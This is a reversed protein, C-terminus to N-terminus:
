LAYKTVNVSSHRAVKVAWAAGRHKGAVAHRCGRMRQRALDGDLGELRAARRGISRDRCCSRKGDDLRMHGADSAIAEAENRLGTRRNPPIVTGAAGSRRCADVDKPALAHAGHIGM